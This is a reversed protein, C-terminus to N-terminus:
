QEIMHVFDPEPVGSRSRWATLGGAGRYLLLQLEDNAASDLCWLGMNDRDANSLSVIGFRAVTFHSERRLAGGPRGLVIIAGITAEENTIEASTRAYDTTTPVIGVLVNAYEFTGAIVTGM